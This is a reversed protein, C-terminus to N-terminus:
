FDLTLMWVPPWVRVDGFPWFPGSSVSANQLVGHYEGDWDRTLFGVGLWGSVQYQKPICTIEVLSPPVLGGSGCVQCTGITSSMTQSPLDLRDSATTVPGPQAM